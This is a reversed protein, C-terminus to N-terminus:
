GHRFKQLSQISRRQRFFHQLRDRSVAALLGGHLECRHNLIPSQLLQFCSGAAGARPDSAGYYLTAIRAQVIAGACMPCPELTVFLTAGPLRYNGVRRAADRIAVIEAHASPDHSSIPQNWGEGIMEGARVVVAGVPVEGMEEARAALDLAREMWYHAGRGEVEGDDCKEAM